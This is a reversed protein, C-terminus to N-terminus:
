DLCRITHIQNGFGPVRDISHQFTGPALLQRFFSESDDGQPQMGALWNVVLTGGGALQNLCKQLVESQVVDYVDCLILEFKRTESLKNLFVTSDALVVQQRSNFEFDAALSQASFYDWYLNIIEASREVSTWHLDPRQYNVHRLASGGGLGLELVRAGQPLHDLVQLMRQQHPFVIAQPDALAMVSQIDGNMLMFRYVQNELVVVRVEPDRSLYVLTTSALEHEFDAAQM